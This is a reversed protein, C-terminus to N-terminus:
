LAAEYEKVEMGVREDVIIGHDCTIAQTLVRYQGYMGIEPLYGDVIDYPLVDSWYERTYTYETITTSLEELRREVYGQLTEGNVRIPNTDVEDIVRGRSQVSTRSDPNENVAVASNDGQIATYRNPIGNLNKKYDLDPQLMRTNAKNLSLSPVSPKDCITIRGDGHIRMCWNAADLITWVAQLYTVGVGFIVHEELTFGDGEVNVPAPTCSRLLEAAYEAGNVGKPAYTGVLVKKEKAPQLVSYGDISRSDLNRNIAGADSQLLLTAIPEKVTVHGQKAILEIRYWGEEFAETIPRVATLSGAELLPYDDTCDRNIKISKIGEYPSTDEWTASNVHMVLWKATYVSAWDIGVDAM